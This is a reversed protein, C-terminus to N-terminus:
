MTVVHTRRFTDFSVGSLLALLTIEFPHRDVRLTSSLNTSMYAGYFSFTINVIPKSKIREETAKILNEFVGNSANSGCDVCSDTTWGTTLKEEQPSYM